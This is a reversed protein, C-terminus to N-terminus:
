HQCAMPDTECDTAPKDPKKRASIDVGLQQCNSTLQDRRAASVATILKRAKAENGAHCAALFCMPAHDANVPGASCLAVVEEYRAEKYSRAIENDQSERKV